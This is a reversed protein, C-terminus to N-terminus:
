SHRRLNRTTKRNADMPQERPPIKPPLDAYRVVIEWRKGDKGIGVYTDRRPDFNDRFRPDRQKLLFMLLIDSKQRVGPVIQGKFTVPEGEFARRRAEQTLADTGAQWAEAWAREFTKSKDRTKYLSTRNLGAAKAAHAVTNGEALSDLFRKQQATLGPFRKQRSDTGSAVTGEPANRETM